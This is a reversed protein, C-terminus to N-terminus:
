CHSWANSKQPPARKGPVLISPCAQDLWNYSALDQLASIRASSAVAGSDNAPRPIQRTGATTIGAM